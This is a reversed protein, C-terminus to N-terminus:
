AASRKALLYREVGTRSRIDACSINRKQCFAILEQASEFHVTVEFGNVEIDLVSIESQRELHDTYTRTKARMIFPKGKTFATIDVRSM